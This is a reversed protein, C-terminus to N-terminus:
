IFIVLFLLLIGIVSREEYKRLRNQVETVQRETVVAQIVQQRQGAGGSGFIEDGQTMFSPCDPCLVSPAGGEGKDFLGGGTGSAGSPKISALREKDKAEKEAKDAAAKAEQEKRQGAFDTRTPIKVSAQGGSFKQAAISALQIAGMAIPAIQAIAGAIGTQGWVKAVAVATNLVVQAAAFTQDIKFQKKLAKNKEEILINEQEAQQIALNEKLEAADIGTIGEKKIKEDLALFEADQTADLATTKDAFEQEILQKRLGSFATLTDLIQQSSEATKTISEQRLAEEEESITKKREKEADEFELKVADKKSQTDREIEEELIGSEDGAQRALDLKIKAEDDIVKIEKEFDTLRLDDKLKSINEKLKKKNEEFKTDEDMLRKMEALIKDNKEKEAQAIKEDSIVKEDARNQRDAALQKESDSVEKDLTASKKNFDTQQSIQKTELNIIAAVMQQRKILDEGKITEGKHENDFQILKQKGIELEKNTQIVNLANIVSLADRREEISKTNDDFVQTQIAIQKSYEATSTIINLQLKNLLIIQEIEDRYATNIKWTGILLNGVSATFDKVSANVRAYGVSMDILEEDSKMLINVLAGLAVVIIGLGTAILAGKLKTFGLTLVKVARTAVGVMQALAGFQPSILGALQTVDQTNKGISKLDSVIKETGTARINLIAEKPM